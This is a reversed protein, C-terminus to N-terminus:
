RWEGKSPGGDMVFLRVPKDRLLGRKGRMVTDFLDVGESILNSFPGFEISEFHFWPGITLMTPTGDGERRADRVREYDRVTERLM